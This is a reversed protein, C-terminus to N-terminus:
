PGTFWLTGYDDTPHMWRRDSSLDPVAALIRASRDVEAVLLPLAVAAAVDDFAAEVAELL